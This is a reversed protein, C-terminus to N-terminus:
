KSEVKTCSLKHYSLSKILGNKCNERLHRRLTKLSCPFMKKNGEKYLKEYEHKTLNWEFWIVEDDSYFNVFDQLIHGDHYMINDAPIPRVIKVEYTKGEYTNEVIGAKIVIWKKKGISLGPIEKRRCRITMMRGNIVTEKDWQIIPNKYYIGTSSQIFM